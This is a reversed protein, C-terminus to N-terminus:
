FLPLRIVAFKVEAHSGSFNLNGNAQRWGDVPYPGFVAFEAAGLSYASPKDGVRGYRDAVSSVTVTRPTAGSNQAIILERGTHVCSNGNAVDAATLTLDAAEAVQPATLDPPVKVPIDTTPM